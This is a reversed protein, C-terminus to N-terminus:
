QKGLCNNCIATQEKEYDRCPCLRRVDDAAHMCSFLQVHEQLYCVKSIPDYSPGHLLDITEVLECTLKGIRRCFFCAYFFSFNM